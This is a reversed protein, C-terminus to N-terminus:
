AIDKGGNFVCLEIFARVKNAQRNTQIPAGDQEEEYMDLEHRCQYIIDDITKHYHDQLEVEAPCKRYLQEFTMKKFQSM